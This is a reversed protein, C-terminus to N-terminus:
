TSFHTQIRVPLAAGKDELERLAAIISPPAAVSGRLRLLLGFDDVAGKVMYGVARAERWGNDTTASIASLSAFIEFVREGIATAEETLQDILPQVLPKVKSKAAAQVEKLEARADQIRQSLAHAGALLSAKEKELSDRDPGLMAADSPSHDALLADAVAAGSPGAFEAIERSIATCRERAAKEATGLQLITAEIEAIRQNEVSLDLEALERGIEALSAANM